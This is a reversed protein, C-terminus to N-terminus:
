ESLSDCNGAWQSYLHRNIPVGNVKFDSIYVSAPGLNGSQGGTFITTFVSQIQATEGVGTLDFSLLIRKDTRGSASPSFANTYGQVIKTGNGITYGVILHVQPAQVSFNGSAGPEVIFSVSNAPVGPPLTIAAGIEFANQQEAQVYVVEQGRLNVWRATAGAPGCNYIQETARGYNVRGAFAPAALFLSCSLTLLATSKKLM